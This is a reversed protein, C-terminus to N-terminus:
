AAVSQAYATARAAQKMQSTASGRASVQNGTTRADIRSAKQTVLRGSSTRRSRSTLASAPTVTLRRRSSKETARKRPSADSNAVAAAM